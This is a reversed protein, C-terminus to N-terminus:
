HYTLLAAKVCSKLKNGLVRTLCSVVVQLKLDLSDSVKRQGGYVDARLTSYMCVSAYVCM